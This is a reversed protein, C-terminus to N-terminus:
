TRRASLATRVRTLAVEAIKPFGKRPRLHRRRDRESSTTIFETSLPSTKAPREGEHPYRTYLDRERRRELGRQGGATGGNVKPITHDLRRAARDRLAPPPGGDETGNKSLSGRCVERRALARLLGDLNGGNSDIANSGRRNREPRTDMVSTLAVLFPQQKPPQDKIFFYTRKSLEATTTPSDSHTLEVVRKLIPRGNLIAIWGPAPTATRGKDAM